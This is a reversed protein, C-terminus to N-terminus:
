RVFSWFWNSAEGTSAGSGSVNRQLLETHNGEMDLKSDQDVQDTTHQDPSTVQAVPHQEVGNHEDKHPAAAWFKECCHKFCCNQLTGPASTKPCSDKTAWDCGCYCNQLQQVSRLSVSRETSRAREGFLAVAAVLALAALAVVAAAFAKQRGSWPAPTPKPTQEQAASLLVAAETGYEKAM